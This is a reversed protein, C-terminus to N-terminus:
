PGAFLLKVVVSVVLAGGLAWSGVMVAVANGYGRGKMSAYTGVFLFGALLAAFTGGIALGPMAGVGEQVFTIAAYGAVAASAVFGVTWATPSYLVDEVWGLSYDEPSDEAEMEPVARWDFGTLLYAVVFVVTTGTVATIGLQEIGAM